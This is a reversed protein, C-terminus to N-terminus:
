LGFLNVAPLAMSATYIAERSVDRELEAPLVLKITFAIQQPSYKRSLMTVVLCWQVNLLDLMSALRAAQRRHAHQWRASQACHVGDPAANRSARARASQLKMSAIALREKPRLQKCTRDREM